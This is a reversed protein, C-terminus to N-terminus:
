IEEDMHFQMEDELEIRKRADSSLILSVPGDTNYTNPESVTLLPSVNLQGMKEAITTFTTDNVNARLPSGIKEVPM